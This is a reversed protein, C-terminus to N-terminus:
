GQPYFLNGPKRTKGRHRPGTKQRIGANAGKTFEGLPFATRALQEQTMGFLFYTQDKERDLSRAVSLRGDVEVRRAYHGTVLLEAGFAMAREALYDFKVVQNCKVCPVPTRGNEYESIFDEIM